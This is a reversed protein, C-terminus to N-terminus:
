TDLILDAIRTWNFENRVLSAKAELITKKECGTLRRVRAVAELIGEVNPSRCIILADSFPSTIEKMDSAIVYAPSAIMEILKSPFFYRYYEDDLRRVCLAINARNLAVVVEERSALGRMIVSSYRAAYQRALPALEGDGFLELTLQGESVAAAELLQDIGNLRNLTGAYFLKLPADAVLKNLFRPPRSTTGGPFIASSGSSPVISAVYSNIFITRSSFTRLTWNIFKSRAPYYDLIWFVVTFGLMKYLCIILLYSRAANISFVTTEHRHRFYRAALCVARLFDKSVTRGRSTAATSVCGASANGRNLRRSGSDISKVMLGRQKFGSIAGITYNELASHLTRDGDLDALVLVTKVMPRAWM